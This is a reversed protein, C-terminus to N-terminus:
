ESAAPLFPLGRDVWQQADPHLLAQQLAVRQQLARDADAEGIVIRQVVHLHLEQLLMARLIGVFLHQAADLDRDVPNRRPQPIAPSKLRSHRIALLSYFIGIRWEGSGM